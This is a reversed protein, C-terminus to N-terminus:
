IVMEWVLVGVEMLDVDGGVGFLGCGEMVSAEEVLFVRGGEIGFAGGLM